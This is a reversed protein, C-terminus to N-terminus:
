IARRTPPGAVSASSLHRQTRVAPLCKLSADISRLLGLGQNIKLYWLLLPRLALLLLLEVTLLTIALQMM